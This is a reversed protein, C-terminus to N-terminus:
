VVSRGSKHVVRRAHCVADRLDTHLLTALACSMETLTIAKAEDTSHIKTQIPRFYVHYVL